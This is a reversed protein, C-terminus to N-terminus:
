FAKPKKKLSDDILHLCIPKRMLRVFPDNSYKYKESSTEKMMKEWKRRNPWRAYALLTGDDLRHLSSGLSGYKKYIFLTGKRWNYIFSKLKIGKKLKWHYIVAFM